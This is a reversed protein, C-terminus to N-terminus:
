FLEVHHSLVRKRLIILALDLHDNIRLCLEYLNDIVTQAHCLILNLLIDVLDCKGSGSIEDCLILILCVFILDDTMKSQAEVACKHNRIKDGDVGKGILFARLRYVPLTVAAAGIGHVLAAPLRKARSYSQM